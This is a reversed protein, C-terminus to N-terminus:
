FATFSIAPINDNLFTAIEETLKFTTEKPLHFALYGDGLVSLAKKRPESAICLTGDDYERAYFVYAQRETEAM